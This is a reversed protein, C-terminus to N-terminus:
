ANKLKHSYNSQELSGIYSCYNRLFFLILNPENWRIKRVIALSM